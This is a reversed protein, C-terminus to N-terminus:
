IKDDFAGNGQLSAAGRDDALPRQEQVTRATGPHPHAPEHGVLHEDPKPGSLPFFM